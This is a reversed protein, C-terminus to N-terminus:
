LNVLSQPRATLITASIFLTFSINKGKKRSNVSTQQPILSIDFNQPGLAILKSSRKM